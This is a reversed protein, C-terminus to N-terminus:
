AAEETTEVVPHHTLLGILLRAEQGQAKILGAIFKRSADEDLAMLALTLHAAEYRRAKEALDPSSSQGARFRTANAEMGVIEAMEFLTVKPQAM